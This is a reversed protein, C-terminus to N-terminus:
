YEGRGYCIEFCIGRVGMSNGSSFALLREMTDHLLVWSADGERGFSLLDEQGMGNDVVWALKKGKWAM